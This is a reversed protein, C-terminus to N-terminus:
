FIFVSLQCCLLRSINVNGSLSEDSLFANEALSLYFSTVFKRASEEVLGSEVLFNQTTRMLEFFSSIHGTVSVLPKMLVESDCVVTTGVMELISFVQPHTPFLLIPGSRRASSPLPVTRVTNSHDEIRILAHVEEINVAAMMSIILQTSRFPLNPLESRAIAPLLGIFVVDANEVIYSNEEIVEVLDTFDRKLVASKDVSRASVLIKKPTKTPHSCFGRVVASSIKGCGLFGFTLNEIEM